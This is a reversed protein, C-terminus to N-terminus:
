TRNYHADELIESKKATCKAMAESDSIGCWQTADLRRQGESVWYESNDLGIYHRGLLKCAQGITASGGFPDFVTEGRETFLAILKLCLDLPKENPHRNKKGRTSNCPWLGYSGRGNWRKKADAHLLAIGEYDSPGVLSAMGEYCAAPRDGTMQGQANPKYWISGRVYNKPAARKFEGFDEVACFIHVWRKAIRVLDTAFAHSSLPPFPLEVKPIGSSVIEGDVWKRMATGSVQNKQTHENYPPDTIVHDVSDAPIRRLAEFSDACYQMVHM